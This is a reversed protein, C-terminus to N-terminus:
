AAMIEGISKKIQKEVTLAQVIIPNDPLDMWGGMWGGVRICLLGFYWGCQQFMSFSGHGFEQHCLPYTFPIIFTPKCKKVACANDCSMFSSLIYKLGCHVDAKTM